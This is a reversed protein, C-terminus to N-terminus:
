AHMLFLVLLKGAGWISIFTILSLTYLSIFWYVSKKSNAM